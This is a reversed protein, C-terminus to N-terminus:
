VLEDVHEAPQDQPQPLKPPQQQSKKQQDTAKEENRLVKHLKTIPSLPIIVPLELM